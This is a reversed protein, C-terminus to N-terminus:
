EEGKETYGMDEPACIHQCRACAYDTSLPILFWSTGGCKTCTLLLNFTGQNAYKKANM